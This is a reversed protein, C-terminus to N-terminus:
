REWRNHPADAASDARLRVEIRGMEVPERDGELAVFATIEYEGKAELSCTVPLSVRHEHGPEIETPRAVDVPETACALAHKRSAVRLSIRMPGVQLPSRGTNVFVAFVRYADAHPENRISSASSEGVLAVELGRRSPHHRPAAAGSGTVDITLRGALDRERDFVGPAFRVLVDVGYSGPTPIVCDLPRAFALSAGADLWVAEGARSEPPREDSCPYEVGDRHVAFGFRAGAVNTKTDTANTLLVDVSLEGPGGTTSDYAARRPGFVAARLDPRAPLPAGLLANGSEAARVGFPPAAASTLVAPGAAPLVPPACSLGVLLATAVLPVSVLSHSGHWM